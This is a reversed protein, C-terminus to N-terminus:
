CPSRAAGAMEGLLGLVEDAEGPTLVSTPEDLIM